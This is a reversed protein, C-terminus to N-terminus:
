WISVERRMVVPIKQDSALESNKEEELNERPSYEPWSKSDFETISCFTITIVEIFVLINMM